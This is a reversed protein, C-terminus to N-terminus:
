AGKSPAEQPRGSPLLLSVALKMEIYISEGPSLGLFDKADGRWYGKVELQPKKKKDMPIQFKPFSEIFCDIWVFFNYSGKEWRRQLGIASSPMLGM